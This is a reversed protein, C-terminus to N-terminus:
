GCKKGLVTLGKGASDTVKKISNKDLDLKLSIIFFGTMNMRLAGSRKLIHWFNSNVCSTIM